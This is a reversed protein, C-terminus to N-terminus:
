TRWYSPTLLVLVPIIEIRGVWMLVVMALKATNSFPEYSGFPGAIGFAPGINFFTAAAAGMADFEGIDPGDRATDIVLFVTAAAFFCLSILTYAYIDRIAEESVVEGSLRVPQIVSPHSSTFLDRRFAKLVVLWRLVKISCTTSGAMGGIFMCVFLLHKASASWANFDVTAFGTTTMISVVQFTAHRLVEEVSGPFEADSALVVGVAGSFLVLLSVYFRFEESRRFRATDGQLLFYLLVFSTAGLTMFPITVWQIAPSFAGISLPQPSFGSTSVTTLPHAVADYLTMDPAFGVLHLGYFVVMQLVTLGVYLTSLLRATEEIRPTLKHVDRTRTETEMLQAGGVGLESLVATALVLIGLGGLWQVLQRWLMISRAHLEFDVIVTAGTTTIGSTSEFLANVPHSLAGRGAVVFPIAGMLAIALWTLAVMLFAERHGLEREAALHELAFGVVLTTIIAALFPTLPEDYLLAVVLPVALPVALWKLITGVFSCSARWDVRIRVM